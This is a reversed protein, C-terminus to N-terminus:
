QLDEGGRPGALRHVVVAPVVGDVADGEQGSRHLPGAHRHPDRSKGAVDFRQAAGGPVVAEERDIELVRVLEGVDDGGDGTEALPVVVGYSM